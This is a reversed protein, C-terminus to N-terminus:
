TLEDSITVKWNWPVYEFRAYATFLATQEYNWLDSDTGINTKFEWDKNKLLAVAKTGGDVCFIYYRNATCYPTAIVDFMGRFKGTGGSVDTGPILHTSALNASGILNKFIFEHATGCVM